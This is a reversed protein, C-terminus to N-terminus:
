REAPPPLASDNAALWLYFDPNEDLAALLSAVESDNAIGPASEAAVPAAALPLAPVREVPAQRLQLGAVLALVAASGAWAWRGHSRAPSAQMAAARRAHQLRIRVSPSVRSLADAYLARAAQDFGAPDNGARFDPEGAPRGTHLTTM